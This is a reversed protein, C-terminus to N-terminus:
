QPSLVFVQPQDSAWVIFSGRSARVNLRSGPLQLSVPRASRGAGLKTLLLLPRRADTTAVLLTGDDLVAFDQVAPIGDFGRPDDSVRIRRFATQGAPKYLIAGSLYDLVYLTGDRTVQGRAFLKGSGLMDALDIGATQRGKGDFKALLGRDPLLTWLAGDGMLSLGGIRAAAIPPPASVGTQRGERVLSDAGGDIGLDIGKSFNGDEAVRFVHHEAEDFVILGEKDQAVVVTPRFPVEIGGERVIHRLLKGAPSYDALYGEEPYALVINGGSLLAADSILGKGPAFRAVTRLEVAQASSAALLLM